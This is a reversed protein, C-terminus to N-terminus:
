SIKGLVKKAKSVEKNKGYRGGKSKRYIKDM